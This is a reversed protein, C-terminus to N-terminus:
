VVGPRNGQRRHAAHRAVGIFQVTGCHGPDSERM